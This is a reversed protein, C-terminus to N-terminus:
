NFCSGIKVVDIDSEFISFNPDTCITITGNPQITTEPGFIGGGSCDLFDPLEFPVFKNNTIEFKCCNDNCNNSCNNSIEIIAPTNPSWQSVSGSSDVINVQLEYLGENNINPTQPNNLNISFTTWPVTNLERYRGNASSVNFGLQVISTLELNIKCM